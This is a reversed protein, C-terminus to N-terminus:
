PAPRLTVAINEALRVAPDGFCGKRLCCLIVFLRDEDDSILRTEQISAHEALGEALNGCAGAEGPPTQRRRWRRPGLDVEDGAANGEPELRGVAAVLGMGGPAVALGPKVPVLMWPVKAQAGNGALTRTSPHVARAIAAGEAAALALASLLLAAQAPFHWPRRPLTPLPALFGLLAGCAFGGGHAFNDVPAVFAIAVNLLLNFLMARLAARLADPPVRHRMRLWLAGTAGFLGFVGGSAGAAQTFLNEGAASAAFSAAGGALSSAAFLGLAAAPGYTAEVPRMLVWLAWSNMAFHAVGIHLFAYSGLRWWDGDLVAPAHLSGLRMLAAPDAFTWGGLWAQAAFAAGLLALLAATSTAPTRRPPAPAPDPPPEPRQLGGLPDNM